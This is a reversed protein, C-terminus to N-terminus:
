DWGKLKKVENAISNYFEFSMKWEYCSEMDHLIKEGYGWHSDHGVCVGDFNFKCNRCIEDQPLVRKMVERNLEKAFM